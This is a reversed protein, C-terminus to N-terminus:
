EWISKPLEEPDWGPLADLEEMAEMMAEMLAESKWEKPDMGSDPDYKRGLAKELWLKELRLAHPNTEHELAKLQANISADYEYQAQEAPSLNDPMDDLSAMLADVHAAIKTASVRVEEEITGGHSELYEALELNNMITAQMVATFGSEPDEANVDAGLELLLDIM